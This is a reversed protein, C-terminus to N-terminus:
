QINMGRRPFIPMVKEKGRYHSRYGRQSCDKKNYADQLSGIIECSKAQMRNNHVLEKEKRDLPLVRWNLTDQALKLM